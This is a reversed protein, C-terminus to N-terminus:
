LYVLFGINCFRAVTNPTNSPTSQGCWFTSHIKDNILKPLRDFEEYTEKLKGKRKDWVTHKIREQLSFYTSKRNKTIRINLIGEKDSAYKKKFCPNFTITEKSM